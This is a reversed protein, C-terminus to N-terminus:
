EKVLREHYEWCNDKLYDLLEKQEEHSVNTLNVEVIKKVFDGGKGQLALLGDRRRREAM